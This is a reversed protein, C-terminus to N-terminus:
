HDSGDELRRMEEEYTHGTQAKYEDETKHFACVECRYGKDYEKRTIARCEGIVPDWLICDDM